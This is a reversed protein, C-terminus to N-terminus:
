WDGFPLDPEKWEGMQPDFNDVMWDFQGPPEIVPPNMREFEFNFPLRFQTKKSQGNGSNRRRPEEPPVTPHRDSSDSSWDQSSNSSIEDDQNPNCVIRRKMAVHPFQRQCCPHMACNHFSTLSPTGFQIRCMLRSMFDLRRRFISRAVACNM